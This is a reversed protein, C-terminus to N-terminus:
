VGLESLIRESEIWLRMAAEDDKALDTLPKEELEYFYRGGDQGCENSTAMWVLTRAAEAPTAGPADELYTQMMEDGHSAFNTHVVGPGMSQAVIGNLSVQRDLERIFLINCLKAQCYIASAAYDKDWFLDNWRIESCSRHAESAVAIVRVSGAPQGQATAKLIPLLERTLLFTAFHNAAMTAELGESSLYKQDRVGGANNILVDIRDTLSAIEGAIRMVDAMECFDGRVFDVRAGDSAVSRIDAEAQESREPDRGTGIVHWGMMAFAEATAKGIGSSAGTVVVTRQTNETM